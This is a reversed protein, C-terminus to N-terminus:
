RAADGGDVAPKRTRRWASWLFVGASTWIVAFSLARVATLPEGQAIGLVFTISPAIFQLFGLASLSIRRAAWAFLLLPVATVIGAAVLWPTAPQGAGFHSLGQRDLWEMYVLAPAVLVSCEIFLGTQADADVRKRVIGYACFSVALVLSIWPLHGLAWAQIAVGTVALTVAGRGIRDLREHLFLAGAAMNLIPTIFYGLSTQLVRGTNVALIFIVWNTAILAASVVLWALVRPRALVAFLQARQRGMAVFAGAVPVAWITRHTLIEWPDVDMRGIAQFLLPVFGWITYCTVAALVPRLSAHSESV